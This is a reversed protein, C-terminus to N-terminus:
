QLFNTAFFHILKQSYAQVLPKQAKPASKSNLPVLVSLSSFGQLVTTGGLPQKQYSNPLWTHMYGIFVTANQPSFDVQTRDMDQFKSCLQNFVVTISQHIQHPLSYLIQEATPVRTSLPSYSTSITPFHAVQGFSLISVTLTASLIATIILLSTGNFLFHAKHQSLLFHTQTSLQGM